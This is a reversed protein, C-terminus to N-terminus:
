KKEITKIAEKLGEIESKIQTIKELISDREDEVVTDNYANSLQKAETEKREISALVDNIYFNKKFDLLLNKAQDNYNSDELGLFFKVGGSSAETQSYIVMDVNGDTSSAPLTVKYYTKMNLLTGFGRAYSWWGRRVSERDFDFDTTYGKLTKGELTLETKSIKTDYDKQGFVICGIFLLLGSLTHKYVINKMDEVFSFSWIM